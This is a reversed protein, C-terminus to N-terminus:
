GDLLNLCEINAVDDTIYETLKYKLMDERGIIINCPINKLVHLHIKIKFDKVLSLNVIFYHNIYIYDGNVLKVRAETELPKIGKAILLDATDNDIFNYPISLTDLLINVRIGYLDGVIGVLTKKAIAIM